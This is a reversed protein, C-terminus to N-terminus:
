YKFNSLLYIIYATGACVVFCPEKQFLLPCNFYHSCSPDEMAWKPCDKTIMCSRMQSNIIKYIM